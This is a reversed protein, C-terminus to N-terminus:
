NNQFRGKVSFGYMQMNVNIFYPQGFPENAKEM